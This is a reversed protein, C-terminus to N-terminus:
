PSSELKKLNSTCINFAFFFFLHYFNIHYFYILVPCVFKSCVWSFFWKACPFFLNFFLCGFVM